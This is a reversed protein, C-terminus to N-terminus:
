KDPYSLGTDIVFESDQLGKWTVSELKSQGWEYTFSTVEKIVSNELAWFIDDSNPEKAKQPSEGEDDAMLVDDLKKEM